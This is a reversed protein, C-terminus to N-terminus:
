GTVVPGVLDELKKSPSDPSVREAMAEDIRWGKARKPCDGTRYKLAVGYRELKAQYLCWLLMEESGKSPFCLIFYAGLAMVWAVSKIAGRTKPDDVLGIEGKGRTTGRPGQKLGPSRLQDKRM